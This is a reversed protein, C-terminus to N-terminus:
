DQASGLELAIFLFKVTNTQTYEYYLSELYAAKLNPLLDLQHKISAISALGAVIDPKSKLNINLSQQVRLLSLTYIEKSKSMEELTHM